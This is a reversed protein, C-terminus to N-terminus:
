KKPCGWIPDNGFQEAWLEEYEMEKKIDEKRFSYEFNNCYNMIIKYAEIIKQSMEKCKKSDEKCKDPHWKAILKRYRGKIQKITAKEPLDLVNVAKEIEEYKVSM